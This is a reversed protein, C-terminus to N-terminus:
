SPREIGILVENSSFHHNWYTDGDTHRIHGDIRLRFACFNQGVELWRTAPKVKIKIFDGDSDAGIEDITGNFVPCSAAHVASNFSYSRGVATTGDAFPTTNPLSNWGSPLHNGSKILNINGIAGKGISLSYAGMFGSEQNAVFRVEIPADEVVGGAGNSPLTFLACNGLTTGDMSIDEDLEVTWNHNDLYLAITEDISPIKSGDAKYGEIRFEVRGRGTIGTYNGTNLFAKYNISTIWGAPQPLTPPPAEVNFYCRTPALPAGDVSLNQTTRVSTNVPSGSSVNILWMDEEVNTWGIGSRRYRVTYYAIAPDTFRCSILNLKGKWAACSLGNGSIRGSSHLTYGLGGRNSSSDEGLYIDGVYQIVSQGACPNVTTGIVSKPICIDIRRCTNINAYLGSEYMVRNVNTPDLIQVLLDPKRQTVFSEGGAVDTELEVADEYDSRQFRFIYNGFSDTIVNGLIERMGIGTYAGGALEAVSRDYEVFRLLASVYSQVNCYFPFKDVIRGLKAKDVTTVISSVDRNLTISSVATLRNAVTEEKAKRKSDDQASRDVKFVTAERQPILQNSLLPLMIPKFPPDPPNPPQPIGPKRILREPYVKKIYNRLEPYELAKQLAPFHDIVIWDRWCPNLFCLGEYYSVHGYVIYDTAGSTAVTTCRLVLDNFDSDGTGTGGGDDSALTFGTCPAPSIVIKETSNQWVTGNKNQVQISWSSGTVLVNTGVVGAHVGNGSSAGSVIFRQDRSAFKQTVQVNWSGHMLIAM